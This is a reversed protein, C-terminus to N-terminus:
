IPEGGPWPKASSCGRCLTDIAVGRGVDPTKGGICIAQIVHMPVHPLPTGVTPMVVIRRCWRVTPRPASTAVKANQAAAAPVIRGIQAAARGAQTMDCALTVVDKTHAHRQRDVSEPDCWLETSEKM